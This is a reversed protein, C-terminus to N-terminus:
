WDHNYRVFIRGIIQDRMFRYDDCMGVDIGIGAHCDTEKVVYKHSVEVLAKTLYGSSLTTFTTVVLGKRSTPTPKYFELLSLGDISPGFVPRNNSKM